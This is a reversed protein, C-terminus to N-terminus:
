GGGGAGEDRRPRADLVGASLLAAELVLEVEMRFRPEVLEAM